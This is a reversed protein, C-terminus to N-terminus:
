TNEECKVLQMYKIRLEIKNCKIFSKKSEFCFLNNKLSDKLYFFTSM